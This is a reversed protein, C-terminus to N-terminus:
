IILFNKRNSKVALRKLFTSVENEELIKNEGSIEVFQNFVSNIEKNTVTNDSDQDFISFLNEINNQAFFSKDLNKNQSRLLNLLNGNM